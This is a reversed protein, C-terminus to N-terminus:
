IFGKKKGAKSILYICLLAPLKSLIYLSLNQLKMTKFSLIEKLSAPHALQRRLEKFSFSPNIHKWRKIINCIIYVDSMVAIYCRNPYYAKNILSEKRKKLEEVTKFYECIEERDIDDDLRIDSLSNPRCLYTYTIDQITIANQIYTVLELTFVTDEWFKSKMFRLHNDRIVSLRVLYNCASAQIGFYKRYAFISFDDNGTYHCEPYQYIERKGSINIKEYSGFVIDANYDKIKSILLDIANEKIVDDADMFYLFEGQAEEIIQNRTHSVGLNQKHEKIHIDHSRPHREKINKIIDLSSDSSGDDILLFEINEYTQALASEMTREIYDQAQFVPIGITVDYNM